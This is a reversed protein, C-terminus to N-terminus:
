QLASDIQDPTKHSQAISSRIGVIQRFLRSFQDLIDQSLQDGILTIEALLNTYLGTPVCATRVLYVSSVDPLKLPSDSMVYYVTVTFQQIYIVLPRATALIARSSPLQLVFWLNRVKGNRVKIGRKIRRDNRLIRVIHRRKLGIHDSIIILWVYHM